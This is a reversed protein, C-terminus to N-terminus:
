GKSGPRKGTPQPAKTGDMPDPGDYYVTGDEITVVDNAALRFADDDSDNIRITCGKLCIDAM